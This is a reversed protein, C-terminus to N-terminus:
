KRPHMISDLLIEHLQSLRTAAKDLPGQEAASLSMRLDSLTKDQRRLRIEASKVAGLNTNDNMAKELREAASLYNDVAEAERNVDQTEFADLVTRMRDDMLDVSLNLRKKANPERDIESEIQGPPKQAAFADAVGFPVTISLATTLFQGALLLTAFVAAVTVRRNM